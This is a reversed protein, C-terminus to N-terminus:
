QPKTLQIILLTTTITSTLITILTGYDSLFSKVSKLGKDPVYVIDNPHMYFNASELIKINTLDLDYVIFEDNQQRIVKIHRKNGYDTIGGATALAELINIKEKYFQIRGSQGVEGLFTINFSALRVNIVADSIIGHINDEILRRAEDVTKGQVYLNGLTPIFVFGSDNVLYGTLFFNSENNNLAASHESSIRSFM